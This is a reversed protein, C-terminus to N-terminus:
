FLPGPRRFGLCAGPTGRSAPLLERCTSKDRITLPAVFSLFVVIFLDVKSM